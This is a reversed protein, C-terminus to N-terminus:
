REAAGEITEWEGEDMKEDESLESDDPPDDTTASDNMVAALQKANAVSKLSFLDQETSIQVDGEHVMKLQKRKQAKAKEKLMKKKKKKM